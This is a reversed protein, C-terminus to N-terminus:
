NIIFVEGIWYEEIHGIDEYIEKAENRKLIMDMDIM